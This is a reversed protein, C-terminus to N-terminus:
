GVPYGAGVPRRDVAVWGPPLRDPRARRAVGRVSGISLRPLRRHLRPWAVAKSGDVGLIRAVGAARAAGQLLGPARRRSWRVFRKRDGRPRLRGWSARWSSFWTMPISVRQRSLPRQPPYRWISRQKAPLWSAGRWRGNPLAGAATRRRFSTLTASGSIMTTGCCTQFACPLRISGIGSGASSVM